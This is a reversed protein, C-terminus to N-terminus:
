GPRVGGSRQYMDLCPSDTDEPVLNEHPTFFVRTGDDSAGVFDSDSGANANQPGTSILRTVGQYREYVDRRADTDDDTLQETTSFWVRSGDASLFRIGSRVGGELNGAGLMVPQPTRGTVESASVLSTVGGRYEYVDSLTDTDEPVLVQTTVFVVTSGDDSITQHQGVNLAPAIGAGNDAPGTSVFETLNHNAAASAALVLM